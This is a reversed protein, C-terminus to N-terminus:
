LPSLLKRPLSLVAAIEVSAGYDRAVEVPRFHVMAPQGSPVADVM